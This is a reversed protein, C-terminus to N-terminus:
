LQHAEPAPYRRPLTDCSQFSVLRIGQMTFVMRRKEKQPIVCHQKQLSPFTGIRFVLPTGSDLTREAFLIKEIHAIRGCAVILQNIIQAIRLIRKQRAIQDNATGLTMLIDPDGRQVCLAPPQETERQEM